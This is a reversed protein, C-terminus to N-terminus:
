FKAGFTLVASTRQHRIDAAPSSTQWFGEDIVYPSVKYDNILHVVAADLYLVNTLKFGLGISGSYQKNDAGKYPNGYYNIGARGSIINSFLYEGGVRLNVVAQYADKTQQDWETDLASTFGGVTRMKTSGYDIYEADASLFGRSFFKSAGLGFRWPTIIRYSLDSPAYSAERSDFSETAAEDRYYDVGIYSEAYRDVSYWTPSQITAGINWDVSPKFIAGVKFDVGAGELLQYNDDFLEYNADLYRNDAHGPQVFTSNPNDALVASRDKTWGFESFQESNEYRFSSFSINGGIYFKNNYNGGFAIATRASHGSTLVDSIQMKDAVEGTIPFYGKTADSFREVLKLGSLDNAFSQDNFFAVDDSYASVITNDPNTGEYRVNNNLLNTNEYSLGVNFNQWGSFGANKPFHFVAGAHDIGFRGQNRSTESGFYSGRNAANNYGATISIDSQAFFGLGAPNGTISGIDGGLATKANGLAKLRATGGNNEQSFIFAENATQAHAATALGSVFLSTLLINKLKM